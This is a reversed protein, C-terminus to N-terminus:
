TMIDNCSRCGPVMSEFNPHLRAFGANNLCEVILDTLPKFQELPEPASWQVARYEAEDTTSYFLMDDPLDGKYTERASPFLNSGKIRSVRAYSRPVATEFNKDNYCPTNEGGWLDSVRGGAYFSRIVPLTNSKHFVHLNQKEATLNPKSQPTLNWEETFQISIGEIYMVARAEVNDDQLSKESPTTPGCCCSCCGMLQKIDDSM